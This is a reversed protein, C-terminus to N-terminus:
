RLRLSRKAGPTRMMARKELGKLTAPSPGDRGAERGNAYGWASLGPTGDDPGGRCLACAWM